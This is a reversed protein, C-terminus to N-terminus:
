CQQQQQLHHGSPKEGVATTATNNNANSSNKCSAYYELCSESVIREFGMIDMPNLQRVLRSVFFLQLTVEFVWVEDVPGEIVDSVKPPEATDVKNLGEIETGWVKKDNDTKPAAPKQPTPISLPL